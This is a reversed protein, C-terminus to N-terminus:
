YDTPRSKKKGYPQPETFPMDTPQKADSEYDFVNVEENPLLVAEAAPRLMKDFGMMVDSIRSLIDGPGHNSTCERVEHGLKNMDEHLQALGHYIFLADKRSLVLDASVTLIGTTEKTNVNNVFM